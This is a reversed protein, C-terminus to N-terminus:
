FDDDEDDEEETNNVGKIMEQIFGFYFLGAVLGMFANGLILFVPSTRSVEWFFVNLYMCEAQVNEFSIILIIVTFVVAGVLYFVKM